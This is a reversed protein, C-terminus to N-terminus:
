LTFHLYVPVYQFDKRPGHANGEYPRNCREPDQVRQRDFEGRKVVTTRPVIFERIENRGYSFM